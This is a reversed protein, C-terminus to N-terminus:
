GRMFSPNQRHCEEMVVIQRRIEEPTVPLPSGKFFSDYLMSYFNTGMHGHIDRESRSQGIIAVNLKKM